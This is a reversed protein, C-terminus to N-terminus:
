ILIYHSIYHIYLPYIPTPELATALEPAATALEKPLKRTTAVSSEGCRSDRTVVQGQDSEPRGDGTRGSRMKSIDPKPRCGKVPAAILSSFPGLHCAVRLASPEKHAVAKGAAPRYNGAHDAADVKM